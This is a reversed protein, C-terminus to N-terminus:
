LGLAVAEAKRVVTLLRGFTNLLECCLKHKYWVLSLLRPRPFNQSSNVHTDHGSTRGSIM